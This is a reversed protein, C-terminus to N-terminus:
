ETLGLAHEGIPPNDCFDKSENEKKKKKLNLACGLPPLLLPVLLCGASCLAGHPAQNWTGSIIVQASTLHKVL